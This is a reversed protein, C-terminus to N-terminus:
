KILRHDIFLVNEYFGVGEVKIDYRALPVEILKIDLKKGSYVRKGGKSYIKVNPNGKIDIIERVTCIKTSLTLKQQGIEYINKGRVISNRCIIFGSTMLLRFKGKTKIDGSVILGAGHMALSTRDNFTMGKNALLIVEEKSNRDYQIQQGHILLNGEVIKLDETKDIVIQGTLTFSMMLLLYFVKM